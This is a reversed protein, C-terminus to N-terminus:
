RPGSRAANLIIVVDAVDNRQHTEVVIPQNSAQSQRSGYSALGVTDEQLHRYVLRKRQPFVKVDDDSRGGARQRAKLEHHHRENRIRWRLGALMLDVGETRG